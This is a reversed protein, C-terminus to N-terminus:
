THGKTANLVNADYEVMVVMCSGKILEFWFGTGMLCYNGYRGGALGRPVAIKSEKVIIPGKYLNSKFKWMHKKKKELIQFSFEQRQQLIISAWYSTLQHIKM